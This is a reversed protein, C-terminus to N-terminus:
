RELKGLNLIREETRYDYLWAMHAYFEENSMRAFIEDRVAAAGGGPHFINDGILRSGLQVRATRTQRENIYADAIENISSSSAILGALFLGDEIAMCAGQAYYQLAPHAADGLLLVNGDSWIQVPDRDCLVWRKWNRGAQIAALVQPALHGFVDMVSENTVPEGSAPTANEEHVTAVLNFSKWGKLPYHVVHVKRGVWLAMSDWRLEEPMDEFPIVSRYTSHGSIIPPGDGLMRERIVSRLGDAGIILDAEVDPKGDFHLITKKGSHSYGVVTHNTRLDALGTKRAADVLALHLDARHVVAYPHGFRERFPGSLDFRSIQDGSDANILDFRKVLVADRLLVDTLGLKDLAHFANPALQIGAGIEGLESAAEFLVCKLNRQALALAASVGGLGGGVIAIDM